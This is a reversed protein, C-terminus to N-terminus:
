RLRVGHWEFGTKGWALISLIGPLNGKLYEQVMAYTVRLQESDKLKDDSSLLRLAEDKTKVRLCYIHGACPLYERMKAPVHQNLAFLLVNANASKANRIITGIYHEVFAETSEFDIKDAPVVKYISQGNTCLIASDHASVPVQQTSVLYPLGDKDLSIRVGAM